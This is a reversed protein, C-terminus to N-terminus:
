LRKGKGPLPNKSLFEVLAALESEGGRSEDRVWPVQIRTLTGGEQVLCDGAGSLTTADSSDLVTRSAYGDRLSLAIRTTLNAKIETTVVSAKPYQTALVFRIRFARAQAFLKVLPRTDLGSFEDLFVFLYPLRAAPDKRVIEKRRAMEEVLRAQLAPFDGEDLCPPHWLHPCGRYRHFETGKFDALALWVGDPPYRFLLSFIMAHLLVSKGGGTEGAVLVHVAKEADLLYPNGEQTRGLVYQPPGKTPPCEELLPRTWVFTREVEKLPLQFKLVEGLELRVPSRGLELGIDKLAKELRTVTRREGPAKRFALTLSSLGVRSEGPLPEIEVKAVQAAVRAIKEAMAPLDRELTAEREGASPPPGPLISLPLPSKGAPEPYVQSPIEKRKGRAPGERPPPGEPGDETKEKKKRKKEARRAPSFFLKLPLVLIKWSLGAAPPTLLLLLGLGAWGWYKPGLLGELAKAFLDGLLGGAQYGMFHAQNVVSSWCAGLLVLLLGRLLLTRRRSSPLALFPYVALLLFLPVLYAGYGLLFYLAGAPAWGLFPGVGSPRTPPGFAGMPWEALSWGFALASLFLIIAPGLRPAARGKVSKKGRGAM